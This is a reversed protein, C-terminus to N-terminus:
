KLGNQSTQKINKLPFCSEFQSNRNGKVREKKQSLLLQFNIWTPEKREKQDPHKKLKGNENANTWQKNERKLRKKMLKKQLLEQKTRRREKWIERMHCIQMATKLRKTETGFFDQNIEERHETPVYTGKLSYESQM